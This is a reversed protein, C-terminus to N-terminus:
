MGVNFPIDDKVTPRFPPEQVTVDRKYPGPLALM